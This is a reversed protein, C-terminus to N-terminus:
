QQILAYATSFLMTSAAVMGVCFLNRLGVPSFLRKVLYDSMVGDIFLLTLV